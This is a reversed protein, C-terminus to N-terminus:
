PQGKPTYLAAEEDTLQIIKIRYRALTASIRLQFTGSQDFMKVGNGKYKTHLVRGIHRGTRGEQLTVDLAVLSEYDADLRWDMIWPAEVTFMPTTTNSTGTFERVLTEAGAQSVALILVLTLIPKRM